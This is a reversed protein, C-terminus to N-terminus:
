EHNEKKEIHPKLTKEFNRKKEEFYKNSRSNKKTKNKVNVWNRVEIIHKEFDPIDKIRLKTLMVGIETLGVRSPSSEMAVIKPGIDHIIKILEKYPTIFDYQRSELLELQRVESELSKVQKTM